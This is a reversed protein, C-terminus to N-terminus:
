YVYVQSLDRRIAEHINPPETRKGCGFIRGLIRKPTKKPKEGQFGSITYIYKIDYRPIDPPLTVTDSKEDKETISVEFAPNENGNNSQPSTASEENESSQPRRRIKSIVFAIGVIIIAGACLAAILGIMNTTRESSDEGDPSSPSITGNHTAHHTSGSVDGFPRAGAAFVEM